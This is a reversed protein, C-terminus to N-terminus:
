GKSCCCCGLPAGPLTKFSAEPRVDGDDNEGRKKM